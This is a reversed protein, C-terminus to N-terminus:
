GQFEFNLNGSRKESRQRKEKTTLPLVNPAFVRLIKIATAFEGLALWNKLRRDIWRM